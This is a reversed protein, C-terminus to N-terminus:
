IVMRGEFVRDAPGILVAPANEGPWYVRATGGPLAVRVRSDLDGAAIGAVAAATAGSGCALTEGAGREYVRLRIHDRALIEMFGINAREPFAPHATLAPGIRAVPASTTSAVRIVAHPNGLALAAFEVTQGAVDALRYRPARAFGLLPIRAPEFEPVALAAAFEGDELAELVMQGNCTDVVIRTKATLGAARVYRIFCRAGNGCQGSESGDANVIRYTFDATASRPPEVILIQDCGVGLRRDAIRRATAADLALPTRTADLVVFDNGLGHMKTFTLAVSSQSCNRSANRYM